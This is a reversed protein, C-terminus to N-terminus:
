IMALQAMDGAGKMGCSELLHVANWDFSSHEILRFAAACVDALAEKDGQDATQMVALFRVFAYAACLSMHAEWLNERRDSFPYGDFFVHNVLMQEFMRQWEPYREEFRGAAERWRAAARDLMLDDPEDTFSLGLRSMGESIYKGVSDSQEFMRGLRYVCLMMMRDDRERVPPPTMQGCIEMAGSIIWEERNRFAESLLATMGGTLALRQSLDYKRNQLAEIVMKRLPEYYRAATEDRDQPAEPAEISLEREVFRMPEEMEFLLELVAECSNACSCERAFAAHVGRPYLRCVSSLAEEGCEAHLQCLGNEMHLPCDGRWNPSIQAYRDETPHESIHFAGDLKRRLEGSCEIGLLRFYEKVSFSIGWGSCCTSRCAGGKCSFDDYYEPVRYKHADAM